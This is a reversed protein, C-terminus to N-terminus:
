TLCCFTWLLPSLVKKRVKVELSLFKKKKNFFFGVIGCGKPDSLDLTILALIDTFKNVATSYYLVKDSLKEKDISCVNRDNIHSKSLHCFAASNLTSVNESAKGM